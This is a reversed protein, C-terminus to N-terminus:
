SEVAVFDASLSEGVLEMNCLKFSKEFKGVGVSALSMSRTV